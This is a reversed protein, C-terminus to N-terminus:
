DHFVVSEGNSLKLLTEIFPVSWLLWCLWLTWLKGVKWYFLSRRIFAEVGVDM